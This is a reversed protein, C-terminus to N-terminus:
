FSRYTVEVLSQVVTPKGDPGSIPKFQWIKLTALASTSLGYPLGQVVRVQQAHGDEGILVEALVTGRVKTKTAAEPYPPSPCFVCEPHAYGNQGARPVNEWPGAVSPREMGLLDLAQREKTWELFEGADAAQESGDEIARVHLLFSSGGKLEVTGVIAV